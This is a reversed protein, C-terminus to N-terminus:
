CSDELTVRGFDVCLRSFRWAEEETKGPFRISRSRRDIGAKAPRTRLTLCLEGDPTALAEAIDSFTRKIQAAVSHSTPCPTLTNQLSREHERVVNNRVTVTSERQIAAVDIGLNAAANTLSEQSSGPIEEVGALLDDFDDGDM